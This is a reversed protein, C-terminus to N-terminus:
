NQPGEGANLRELAFGLVKNRLTEFVKLKLRDIIPAVQFHLSPVRIKWKIDAENKPDNCM